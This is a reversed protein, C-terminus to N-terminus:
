RLGEGRLLEDAWSMYREPLAVVPPKRYNVIGDYGARDYTLDLCRQLDLPADRDDGKLPIQITPLRQTLFIRYVSGKPRREM